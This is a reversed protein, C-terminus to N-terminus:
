RLIIVCNCKGGLIELADYNIATARHDDTTLCDKLVKLLFNIIHDVAQNGKQEEDNFVYALVMMARGKVNKTFGSKMSSIRRLYDVGGDARVDEKACNINTVFQYIIGLLAKLCDQVRKNKSYNRKFAGGRIIVMIFQCLEEFMAQRHAPNSAIFWLAM